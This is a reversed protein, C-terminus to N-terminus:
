LSGSPFPGNTISHNFSFLSKGIAAEQNSIIKWNELISPDNNEIMDNWELVYEVARDGGTKDWETEILADWTLLIWTPNIHNAVYDVKPINMFQPVKDAEVDLDASYLGLGVGNKARLRYKQISGSPFIDSVTHNFALNVPQNPIYTTL